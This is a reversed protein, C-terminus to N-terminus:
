FFLTNQTVNKYKITKTYYEYRVIFARVVAILDFFLNSSKISFQDQEQSLYIIKSVYWLILAYPVDQDPGLRVNTKQLENSKLDQVPSLFLRWYQFSSNFSRFGLTKFGNYPSVGKGILPIVLSKTFYISLRKTSAPGMYIWIITSPHSM